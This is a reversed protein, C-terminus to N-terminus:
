AEQVKKLRKNIRKENEGYIKTGLLTKARTFSLAMYLFDPERTLEKVVESVYDSQSPNKELFEYLLQLTEHGTSADSM